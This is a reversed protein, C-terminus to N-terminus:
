IGHCAEKAKAIRARAAEGAEFRTTHWGHNAAIPVVEHLEEDSLRIYDEYAAVLEAYPSPISDPLVPWKIRRSDNVRRELEYLASTLVLAQFGSTTVRQGSLLWEAATRIFGMHLEYESLKLLLLDQNTIPDSM